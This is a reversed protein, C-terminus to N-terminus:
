SVRGRVLVTWTGTQVTEEHHNLVAVDFIVLGGEYAPLSRKRRYTLHVYIEDGIMVPARFKWKLQTFAEVIEHFSGIKQALGTAISLVLAGHAIRTRYRTKAAFVDDLHLPHNDGSLEAFQRVDEDTVVRTSSTFEIGPGIDDFYYRIENTM